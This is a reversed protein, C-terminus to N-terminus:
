DIVWHNISLNALRKPNYAGIPLATTVYTMWNHVGENWRVNFMPSADGVGSVSETLSGSRTFGFPGVAATLTADVSATSRGAPVAVAFTAQGGLFPTAFTYSPVVFDLDADGKLKADLSGSFPVTLNGRSVQRAFAVDGGATVSTHYYITAVSWGPQLPAAALSGFFGPLWFSVGGEDALAARAAMAFAGAALASLTFITSRTSRIVSM